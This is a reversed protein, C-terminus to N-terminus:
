VLGERSLIVNKIPIITEYVRYRYRQWNPDATLNIAPAPSGAAAGDWACLGTPNAAVTSSCAATVNNTELLGNRAVIAIRVSKIRNRNQVTPTLATNAWVGTANVWQTVQNNDGIASIGYQAQINVIDSVMQVAAASPTRVGAVNFITGTRTLQNNADIAYLNENWAGLCSLVNPSAVNAALNLTVTQPNIGLASVATVRAMSCNVLGASPAVVILAVDNTSCGFRSNVQALNAGSGALMDMGVGGKMTDGYHIAITDSGNPGAGDTIVVPSLGIAPTAAVNDHNFTTNTPCNFPSYEDSYVPLGFGASQADRQISYLGIAGNTQADSNGTTTRKQQEFASFVNTIVLTVILGIVLGIMVEVLSFGQQKFMKNKNM